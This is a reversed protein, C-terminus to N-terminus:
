FSDAPCKSNSDPTSVCMLYTLWWQRPSAGAFWFLKKVLRRSSLKSVATNRTERSGCEPAGTSHVYHLMEVKWIPHCTSCRATTFQMPVESASIPGLLYTTEDPRQSFSAIADGLTVLPAFSRQLLALFYCIIKLANCIAVTMLISTSMEITCIEQAEQVLCYKFDTLKTDTMSLHCLAIDIVSVGTACGDYPEDQLAMGPVQRQLFSGASIGKFPGTNTPKDVCDTSSDYAVSCPSYDPDLSNGYNLNSINYYNSGSSNYYYPDLSNPDASYPYNSSTILLVNSYRGIFTPAYIDMCDTFSINLLRGSIALQQITTAVDKQSPNTYYQLDASLNSAPYSLIGESATMVYYENASTTSYLASNYSDIDTLLYSDVQRFSVSSESTHLYNCPCLMLM